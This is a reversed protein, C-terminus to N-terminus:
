QPPLFPDLGFFSVDAPRPTLTKEHKSWAVVVRNDRGYNNDELAEITLEMRGHGPVTQPRYLEDPFGRFKGGVALHSLDTAAINHVLGSGRGRNDVIVRLSDGSGSLLAELRPRFGSAWWQYITFLLGVVGLTATSVASIWDTVSAASSTV